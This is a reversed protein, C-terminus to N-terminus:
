RAKRCGDSAASRRRTQGSSRRREGRRPCPKNPSPRKGFQCYNSRDDRNVHIAFRSATRSGNGAATELGDRGVPTAFRSAIRSGEQNCYKPGHVRNSSSVLGGDSERLSFKYSHFLLQNSAENSLNLVVFNTTSKRLVAGAVFSTVFMRTFHRSFELKWSWIKRQKKRLKENKRPTHTTPM